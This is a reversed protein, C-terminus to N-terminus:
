ILQHLTMISQKAKRAYITAKSIHTDFTARRKKGTLKETQNNQADFV